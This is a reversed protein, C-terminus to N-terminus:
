MTDFLREWRGLEFIEYNRLANNCKEVFDTGALPPVPPLADVRSSDIEGKDIDAIVVDEVQLCLLDSSDDQSSYICICVTEQYVVM